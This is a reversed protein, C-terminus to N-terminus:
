TRATEFGAVPFGIAVGIPGFFFFYRVAAAGFQGRSLDLVNMLEGGSQDSHSTGMLPKVLVCEIGPGAHTPLHHSKQWVREQYLAVRSL